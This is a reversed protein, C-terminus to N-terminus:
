RASPWSPQGNLDRDGHETSPSALAKIAVPAGPPGTRGDRARREACANERAACPRAGRDGPGIWAVRGWGSDGGAARPRPAARRDPPCGARRTGAITGRYCRPCPRTGRCPLTGARSGRLLRTGARAAGIARISDRKALFAHRAVRIRGSDVPEHRAQSDTQPDKPERPSRLVRQSRPVKLATRRGHNLLAGTTAFGLGLALRRPSRRAVRSPRLPTKPNM